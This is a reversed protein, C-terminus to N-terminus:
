AEKLSPIGNRMGQMLLAMVQAHTHHLREAIVSALRDLILIGTDPYQEYLRRLDRARVRVLQACDSCTAASTYVRNGLAASWGVVGGPKVRAVTIVAGDEPKYRIIVEGAVVLYIFEAPDGQDFLVTGTYCDCLIFLPRLLLIQEPTLDCFLPLQEFIDGTM